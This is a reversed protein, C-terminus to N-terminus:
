KISTYFDNVPGKSMALYDLKVNYKSAEIHCHRVDRFLSTRTSQYGAAGTASYPVLSEQRLKKTALEVADFSSLQGRASNVTTRCAATALPDFSVGM